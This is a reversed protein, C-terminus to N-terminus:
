KETGLLINQLMIKETDFFLEEDIHCPKNKLELLIALLEEIDINTSITKGANYHELFKAWAQNKSTIVQTHLTICEYFKSPIKDKFSENDEYFMFCVHSKSIVDLINSHSVPTSGGILKIFGQGHVAKQIQRLYTPDICYGIVTVEMEKYITHLQKLTEVAKLTGYTKGLTGTICIHLAEQKSKTHQLITRYVKNGIVTAKKGLYPLEQLYCSEALLFGNVFPALLREKLKVYGALCIRMPYPLPSTQINLAYNEQVDYYIAAGTLWKYLISAYLLEYTTVVVKQPKIALLHFLFIFETFLRTWATRHFTFIEKFIFPDHDPVAKASKHGLMYITGTFSAAISVGMKEYMRVDTCPKLVSAFVIKNTKHKM